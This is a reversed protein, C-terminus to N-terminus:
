SAKFAKGRPPHREWHIWNGPFKFPGCRHGHMGDHRLPTIAVSHSCGSLSSFLPFPLRIGPVAEVAANLVHGEGRETKILEPRGADM